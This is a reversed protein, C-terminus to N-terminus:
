DPLSRRFLYKNIDLKFRSTRCYEIIFHIFDPLLKYPQPTLLKQKGKAWCQEVADLESNGTPFYETPINNQKMYKVTKKSTYLTAKDM